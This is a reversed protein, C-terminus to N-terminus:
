YALARPALGGGVEGTVSVWLSPLGLKALWAPGEGERLMAITAASGALVGLPAVVSVSALGSVPWGSRPNLVHGYRRGDIEICREYDGSTALAGARLAVTRLLEDPQRPDRIGVRWATGDPRPGVVRVDGGLNVMGGGEGAGLWLAAVRDAAYEKVIGGFDLEIGPRDFALRPRRWDVHRWGVRELLADIQTRTPLVGGRFHWAARLVGSTVDFLGESQRYCTDAYDLLAATEDDVELSGGAAAVRNIESLFSDPRYRSFRAELRAVEAVGSDIQGRAHAESDAYLQLECPSGMAHFGYRYRRM